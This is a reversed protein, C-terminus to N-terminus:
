EELDRPRMPKGVSIATVKADSLMFFVMEHASIPAWLEDELPAIVKPYAKKVARKAAGIGVGRSTTATASADVSVASVRQPGGRQQSMVTLSVHTAADEFTQEHHTVPGGDPAVARVKGDSTMGPLVARAEALTMGLRIGGLMETYTVADEPAAPGAGAETGVVTVTSATAETGATMPRASAETGATPGSGATATGATETGATAVTGTAVVAVPTPVAAVPDPAPAEGCGLLVLLGVFCRSTVPM